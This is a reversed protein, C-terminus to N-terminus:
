ERRSGRDDSIVFGAVVSLAHRNITTIISESNELCVSVTAIPQQTLHQLQAASEKLINSLFLSFIAFILRYLGIFNVFSESSGWVFRSPALHM